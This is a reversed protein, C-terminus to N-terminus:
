SGQVQSVHPVQPESILSKSPVGAFAYPVYTLFWKRPPGYTISRGTLAAAIPTRAMITKPSAAAVPEAPRCGCRGGWFTRRGLIM